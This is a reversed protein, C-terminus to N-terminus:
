KDKKKFNVKPEEGKFIRKINPWHKIIVILALVAVYPVFGPVLKWALFPAAIAGVISGPSVRQTAFMVALAVALALLGLRWDVTLLVGLATAIGKGGKFGWVAPWIHGVVVMVAAAYAGTSGYLARGILVAAVGKLVDVLLTAVAWGTGYSRLVNTTGANGSGHKRIDDGRLRSLIMAGSLNGLLYAILISLILPTNIMR